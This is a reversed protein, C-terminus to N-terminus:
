APDLGSTEPRRPEAESSTDGVPELQPMGPRPPELETSTVGAPELGPLDPRPPEVDVLPASPLAWPPKLPAMNLNPLGM